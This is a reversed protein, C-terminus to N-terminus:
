RRLALRSRAPSLIELEPQKRQQKLRLDSPRHTRKHRLLERM